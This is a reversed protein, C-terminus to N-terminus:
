IWCMILDVLLNLCFSTTCVQGFGDLSEDGWFPADFLLVIKDLLGFGIREIASRKPASLPPDFMVTGAKLVGLPLTCVVYEAAWTRGDATQVCVSDERNTIKTVCCDYQIQLGQALIEAIQSYGGPLMAYSGQFRADSDYHVASLQNMSAAYEEEIEFALKWHLVDLSEPDVAQAQASLYVQCWM